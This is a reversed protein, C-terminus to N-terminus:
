GAIATLVQLINHVDYAEGVWADRNPQEDDFLIGFPHDALFQKPTGYKAIKVEDFNVSGLHKALWKEKTKAVRDGYEDTGSKALWSIVGIKWGQAQLTNLLKALQRMDVLPRAERYPKTKGATLYDLWNEVGYMDAITGDMDLYIAKYM